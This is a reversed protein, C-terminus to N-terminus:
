QYNEMEFPPFEPEYVFSEPKYREVIKQIKTITSEDIEISNIEEQTLIQISQITNEFDYYFSEEAEVNKNWSFKRIYLQAIPIAYKRPINLRRLHCAIKSNVGYKIMSPLYELDAPLTFGKDRVIETLYRAIASIGWPLEREVTFERYQYFDKKPSFLKLTKQLAEYDVGNLWDTFFKRRATEKPKPDFDPLLDQKAIEVSPRTSCISLSSVFDILNVLSLIGLDTDNNFLSICGHYWILLNEVNQKIKECDDYPLGLMYEQRRKEKPMTSAIFQLRASVAERIYDLDEPKIISAKTFLDILEKSSQQLWDLTIDIDPYAGHLLDILQSDLRILYKDLTSERWPYSALEGIIDHLSPKEAFAGVLDAIPLTPNLRRIENLFGLFPSAVRYKGQNELLENSRAINRRDESSASSSINLLFIVKPSEFRFASKRIQSIPRGVRGVVNWFVADSIPTYRDHQLNYILVTSFPINVGQALTPSAVLLKIENNRIRKEIEYKVESPVDKHHVAIGSELLLSYETYKRLTDPLTNFKGFPQRKAVCKLLALFEKTTIARKSASFVMTESWKACETAIKIVYEAFENNSKCNDLSFSSPPQLNSKTTNFKKGDWAWSVSLPEDVPRWDIKVINNRSGSILDAFDDANPLVGSLLIIRSKKTENCAKQTMIYILRELLFRYKPDDGGILHGEDAIVLKIQSGLDPYQRLLGDLKEPTLVLIRSRSFFYEDFVDIEYGGYFNSVINTQFQEFVKSFSEEVEQCLKRLPAIYVCKKDPDDWYDLLFRLVALEATKTKGASTPVSICFSSRQPDNVWPLSEIQTRWFEVITATNYNAYIYKTIADSNVPNDRMPKFAQWLSNEIFEETIIKLCEIWWWFKWEGARSLLKQCSTFIQQAHSIKQDDGNKIFSIIALLGEAIKATVIREVVKITPLGAWDIEHQITVDQYIANKGIDSIEESLKKFDKGVFEFIWKQIIHTNDINANLAIGQAQVYYGAVYYCFAADFVTGDDMQKKLKDAIRKIDQRVSQRESDSNAGQKEILRNILEFYISSM